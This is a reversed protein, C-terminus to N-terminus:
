IETCKTKGTHKSVPKTLQKKKFLAVKQHGWETIQSNPTQEKIILM